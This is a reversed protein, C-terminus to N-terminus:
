QQQQLQETPGAARGAAAGAGQRDRDHQPEAPGAPRMARQRRHLWLAGALAGMLITLILNDRDVRDAGSAAWWGRAQAGWADGERGSDRAGGLVVVVRRQVTSLVRQLQVWLSFRLGHRAALVRVDPVGATCLGDPLDLVPPQTGHMRVAADRAAVLLARLAAVLKAGLLRSAQQELWIVAQALRLARQQGPQSQVTLVRCACHLTCVARVTPNRRLPNRRKILCPM